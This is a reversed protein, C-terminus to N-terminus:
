ARPLRKKLHFPAPPQPRYPGRRAPAGARHLRDPRFQRYHRRWDPDRRLTRAFARNFGLLRAASMRGGQALPRPNALKPVYHTREGDVEFDKGAVRNHDGGVAVLVECALRQWRRRKGVLRVDNAALIQARAAGPEADVLVSERSSEQVGAAGM